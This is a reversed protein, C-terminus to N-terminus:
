DPQLTLQGDRRFVLVTRALESIVPLPKTEEGKPGASQGDDIMAEVPVKNWRYDKSEQDGDEEQVHRFKVLYESCCNNGYRM